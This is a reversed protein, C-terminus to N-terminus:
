QLRPEEGIKLRTTRSKGPDAKPMTLTLIGNHYNISTQDHKVEAPLPITRQFSGYRREQRQYGHDSESTEQKVEGRIVVSADSVTVDVDEPNVGPIEASVVIQTASEKVDVSPIWRDMYTSWPRGSWFPTLAQNFEDRMRALEEYPSWRVLDSM